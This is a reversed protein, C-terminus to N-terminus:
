CLARTYGKCEIKFMEEVDSNFTVYSNGWVKITPILVDPRSCCSSSTETISYNMERAGDLVM